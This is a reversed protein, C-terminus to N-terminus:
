AALGDWVGAPAFHAAMAPREWTGSPSHIHVFAGDADLDGTAILAETIGAKSLEVGARAADLFEHAEDKTM